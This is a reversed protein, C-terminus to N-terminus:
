ANTLSVAVPRVPCGTSGRLKLPFALFGFERTDSRALDELWLNEFIPLGSEALLYAHVPLFADQQESPLAEGGADVGICMAGLEECIYRAGSMGLGPPEQLFNDANPWRSMRGTRILVVDRPGVTLGTRAVSERLDTETVAYSPALCEVGKHSAVDLLIGRAIIPPFVGGVTWARSGLHTEQRWGNWFRGERGVHNLSCIHTGTHSYMAFASGAYSYRQNAVPGALSLNDVITGSPTHTMWIEYDPDGAAVWTPMGLFYEVGLDFVCRGDLRRLVDAQSEPTMLNLRGIEDDNGWPSRAGIVAEAM